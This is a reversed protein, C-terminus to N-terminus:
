KRVDGIKSTPKSDFLYPLMDVDCFSVSTQSVCAQGHIKIHHAQLLEWATKDKSTGLIRMESFHVECSCSRCFAPLHM